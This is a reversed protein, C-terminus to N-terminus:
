QAKEYGTVWNSLSNEPNKEMKTKEISKKPGEIKQKLQQIWPAFISNPKIQSEFFILAELNKSVYVKFSEPISFEAYGDNRIISVSDSIPTQPNNVTFSSNLDKEQSILNQPEEGADLLSIIGSGSPDILGAFRLVSLYNNAYTTRLSDTWHKGLKSEVDAVLSLPSREQKFNMRLFKMIEAWNPLKPLIEKLLEKAKDDNGYSLFRTYKTGAETLQYLGRKGALEALGIDRSASLSQSMYIFSLGAGIALDKYTAPKKYSYLARVAQNIGDIGASLTAIKSVNQTEGKSVAM